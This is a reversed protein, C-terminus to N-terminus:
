LYLRVFLAVYVQVEGSTWADQAQERATDCMGAHYPISRIATNSAYIAEAVM